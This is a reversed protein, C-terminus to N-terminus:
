ARQEVTTEVCLRGFAAPLSPCCARCACFPKLVCGGSPPQSKQELYKLLRLTEVCLRGFAAPNLWQLPKTTLFTEVCLRGFAAPKLRGSIKVFTKLKLVCGGSPPQLIYVLHPLLHTTEVCLRGFAAPRPPAGNLTLQLTEVCLRGFAAPQRCTRCRPAHRPKLVCGGSPPQDLPHLFLVLRPRKM